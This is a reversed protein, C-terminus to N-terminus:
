HMLGLLPKSGKPEGVSELFRAEIKSVLEKVKKGNLPIQGGALTGHGGASGPPFVVRQILLGANQKLLSTRISFHIEQKYIGSCFATDVGEYRLLLDALEAALDSRHMNGLYSIITRGHIRANQMGRFFAQYYDRALGASEIKLLLQHDLRELLNIYVVGDEVSSGRSLGNTDARLGLFMATALIPDIDANAADLYQYIMTTTSGITPRIDTYAARRTQEGIPVHHDIVITPITKDAPCLTRSGPQSDVLVLASYKSPEDLSDRHEWEPTLMQFMARNEAREVLGNYFLQTPIGWITNILHNIGKGSALADPDPNDHTAILVPGDQLINRLRTLHNLGVPNVASATIKSMSPIRVQAFRM